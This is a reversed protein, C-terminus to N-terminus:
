NLNGFLLNLVWWVLDYERAYRRWNGKDDFCIKSNTIIDYTQSQKEAILYVYEIETYM